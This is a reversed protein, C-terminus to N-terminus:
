GLAKGGKKVLKWAVGFVISIILLSFAGIGVPGTSVSLMTAKMDAFVPTYGSTDIATGTAAQAHASVLSFGLCVMFALAMLGVRHLRAAGKKIALRM